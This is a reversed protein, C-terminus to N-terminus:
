NKVIRHASWTIKLSNEKCFMEFGFNYNHILEVNITDPRLVVVKWCLLVCFDPTGMIYALSSFLVNESEWSIKDRNSYYFKTFKLGGMCPTLRGLKSSSLVYYTNLYGMAHKPVQPKNFSLNKFTLWRWILLHWGQSGPWSWVKVYFTVRQQTKNFLCSFTNLSLSPIGIYICPAFSSWSNEGCGFFWCTYEQQWLKRVTM